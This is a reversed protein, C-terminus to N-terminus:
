KFYQFLDSETNNETINEEYYNTSQDTTLNNFNDFVTSGRKGLVMNAKIEKIIKAKEEKLEKVAFAKFVSYIPKHDSISLEARDYAIQRIYENKKFLIRDCWSPVRKSKTDYENTNIVYKYTPNFTLKGEDLDFLNSNSYRAKLFQDNDALIDLDKNIILKMCTSYDVDCRFNLDGFIFFINHERFQIRKYLPFNKNLIEIVESIRSSNSGSGAALHGCSFAFSTDLFNFRILCSGKNGMTGMLGTKIIISDFNVIKDRISSKVFIIMFVGVLDLCKIM